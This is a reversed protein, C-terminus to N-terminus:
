LRTEIFVLDRFALLAEVERSYSQLCERLDAERMEPKLVLSLMRDPKPSSLLKQKVIAFGLKHLALLVASEFTVVRGRLAANVTPLQEQNALLARLANRDGTLLMPNPLEVTAAFLLAEGGDIKDISELNALLNADEVKPIEKATDLFEQIRTVTAANGCKALARASKKPLLQYRATPLVFVQEVSKGLLEPLDALLDCQALKLIVDNDALVIM